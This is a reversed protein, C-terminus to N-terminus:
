SLSQLRPFTGNLMLQVALMRLAKNCVNRYHARVKLTTARPPGVTSYLWSPGCLQFKTRDMHPAFGTTQDGLKEHWNSNSGTDPDAIISARNNTYICFVHHEAAIEEDGSPAIEGNCISAKPALWDALLSAPM